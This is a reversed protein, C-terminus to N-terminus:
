SLKKMECFRNYDEPVGIDIFNTNLIIANLIGNKVMTPFLDNELSFPTFDWNEFFRKELKYIGANIYGEGSTFKKESFKFVKGDNNFSVSGYRSTENVKVVGIINPIGIALKEIDSDIFTDANTVFFESEIETAFVVNAIAGGTGLPRDEVVFRIKVDGFSNLHLNEVFEVIQNAEYHLSFIIDNFGQLVLNDLIFKLFPTGNINALAKPVGNLVSRLRTGFGGALIIIQKNKM